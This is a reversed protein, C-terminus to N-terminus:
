RLFNKLLSAGSILRQWGLDAKFHPLVPLPYVGVRGRRKYSQYVYANASGFTLTNGSKGQGDLFGDQKDKYGYVIYGSKFGQGYLCASELSRLYGGVDIFWDAVFSYPVLEWAISVPNLSTYGALQQQITNKIEFTCCLKARYHADRNVTELSGTWSLNRYSKSTTFRDSGKGVVNFL